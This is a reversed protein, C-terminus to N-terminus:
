STSQTEPRSKKYTTQGRDALVATSDINKPLSIPHRGIALQQDNPNHSLANEGM